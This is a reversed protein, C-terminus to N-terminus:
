RPAGKSFPLRFIRLKKGDKSLPRIFMFEVRRNKARGEETDNPGVARSDAYGAIQVRDQKLEHKAVLYRLVATARAASLEWNSPFRPTHIPRSDTHGQISLEGTSMGILKGVVELVEDAEPKLKDSGTDFLVLDNIRLIIGRPDKVVKIAQSLKKTQIYRKVQRFEDVLDENEMIKPASMQQSLEVPTTSMAEFDGQADFQVGFAERVSGLAVKFNEVDM